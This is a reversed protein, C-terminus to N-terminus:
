KMERFKNHIGKLRRYYVIIFTDGQVFGTKIDKIEIWRYLKRCINEVGVVNKKGYGHIEFDDSLCRLM